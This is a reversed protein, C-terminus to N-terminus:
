SLTSLALTRSHHKSYHDAGGGEKPEPAGDTRELATLLLILQRWLALEMKVVFYIVFTEEFSPIREKLSEHVDRGVNNPHMCPLVYGVKCSTSLIQCWPDCAKPLLYFIKDIQTPLVAIGGARHTHISLCM